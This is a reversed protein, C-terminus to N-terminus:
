HGLLLKRVEQLYRTVGNEQLRYYVKGDRKELRVFGSSLLVMMHHSVTAATLGVLEAIELNYRSQDKLCLLIELKSKESLCKACIMLEERTMQEEGGVLKDGLLGSFCVQETMLIMLPQALTPIIEVASSLQDPIGLLGKRRPEQLAKEFKELYGQVEGFVAEYALEFATLNARVAQIIMELQPRGREVLMVLQWRETDSIESEELETYLDGTSDQDVVEQTFVQRVEAESVAEFHELWQPHSFLVSACTVLPGNELRQLLEIGPSKVMHESFVQYYREVVKYNRDYFEEADIGYHELEQKVENRKKEDWPCVCLLFLTEFYKNLQIKM